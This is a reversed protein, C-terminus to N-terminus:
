EEVQDSVEALCREPFFVRRVGLPYAKRLYLGITMSAHATEVGGGGSSRDICRIASASPTIQFRECESDGAGETWREVPPGLARRYRPLSADSQRLLDFCRWRQSEARSQVVLPAVLLAVVVLLACVLVVWVKRKEGFM